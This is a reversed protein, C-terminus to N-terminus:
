GSVPMREFGNFINSRLRRPEGDLAL